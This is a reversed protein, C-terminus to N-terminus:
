NDKNQQASSNIIWDNMFKDKQLCYAQQIKSHRPIEIKQDFRMGFNYFCIIKSPLQGNKSAKKSASNASKEMKLKHSTAKSKKLCSLGEEANTM